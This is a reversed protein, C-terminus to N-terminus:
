PRTKLVVQMSLGDHLCSSRSISLNHHCLLVPSDYMSHMSLGTSVCYAWGAGYQTCPDAVEVTRRVSATLNASNTVTYVIIYPDGYTPQSTDIVRGDACILSGADAAQTCSRSPPLATKAPVFNCMACCLLPHLCLIVHQVTTWFVLLLMHQSICCHHHLLHMQTMDGTVAM